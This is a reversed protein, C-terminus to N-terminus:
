FRSRRRRSHQEYHYGDRVVMAQRVANNFAPLYRLAVLPVQMGDFAIAARDGLDPCRGAEEPYRRYRSSFHTLITRYAGARQSCTLAQDWTSHGAMAAAAESQPGFSAEHILLTAGEAAKLVSQCVRTDGTFVLKWGATHRMSLGWADFCHVVPFSEWSLFGLKMRSALALPSTSFDRHYVFSYRLKIWRRVRCLWRGIVDPGVVLVPPDSPDRAALLGPLGLSHDGHHHSVWVCQLRRVVQLAGERGFMRVIQGLTNEGVDIMMFADQASQLLIGTGARYPSPMACGTGLFMVRSRDNAEAMQGLIREHHSDDHVGGAEADPGFKPVPGPSPIAEASPSFIPGSGFSPGFVIGSGPASNRGFKPVSHLSSAHGSNPGAKPGFSPNSLPHQGPQRSTTPQFPRRKHRKPSPQISCYGPTDHAGSSQQTDSGRGSVIGNRHGSGGCKPSQLKGPTEKSDKTLTRDCGFLQRRLTGSTNTSGSADRSSSSTDSLVTPLCPSRGPPLPTACLSGFEACLRRWPNFEPYLSHARLVQLADQVAPAAETAKVLHGAM